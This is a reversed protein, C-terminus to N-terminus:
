SIVVIGEVRVNIFTLFDRFSEKEEMAGLVCFIEGVEARAESFTTLDFFSYKKKNQISGTTIYHAKM